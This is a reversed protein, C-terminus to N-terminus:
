PRRSHVHEVLQRTRQADAEEMNIIELPQLSAALAALDGDPIVLVYDVLRLAAAMEARAALPALEDALPRVAVALSRAGTRQKAAALDRAVEARLIDFRGVVLLLPREPVFGIAGSVIKTRTDM